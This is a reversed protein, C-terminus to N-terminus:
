GYQFWNGQRFTRMTGTICKTFPNNRETYIIIKFDTIHRHLVSMLRVLWKGLITIERM